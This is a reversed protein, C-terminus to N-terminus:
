RLIWGYVKRGGPVEVGRGEECERIVGSANVDRTELPHIYAEGNANVLQAGVSRVKETVLAGLIQSPYIAGTPHYQISDQYLLSAGARYGLVLGDATAGYHNSTPFGQYHMRGAGGTAIVVTKARAVSYDGTEM